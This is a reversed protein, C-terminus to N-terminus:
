IDLRLLGDLGRSLSVGTKADGQCTKLRKICVEVMTNGVKRRAMWDLSNTCGKSERGKWELGNQETTRSPIPPTRTQVHSPTHPLKTRLSLRIVSCQPHVVFMLYEGAPCRPQHPSIPQRDDSLHTIHPQPLRPPIFNHSPLALLPPTTSISSDTVYHSIFFM